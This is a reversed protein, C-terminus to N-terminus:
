SDKSFFVGSPQSSGTTNPNIQQPHPMRSSLHMKLPLRQSLGRAGKLVTPNPQPLLPGDWDRPSACSREKGAGRSRPYAPPVATRGCMCCELELSAAKRPFGSPFVPQTDQRSCPQLLCRGGPGKPRHTHPSIYHKLALRSVLSLIGM